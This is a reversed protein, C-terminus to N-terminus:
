LPCLEIPCNGHQPCSRYPCHSAVLTDKVVSWDVGAKLVSDPSSTSPEPDAAHDLYLRLAREVLQSRSAGLLAACDDLRHLLQGDVDTLLEAM